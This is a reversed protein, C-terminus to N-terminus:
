RDCLPSAEVLICVQRVRYIGFHRLQNACSESLSSTVPEIGAMPEFILLTRGACKYQLKQGFRKPEPKKKNLSQM